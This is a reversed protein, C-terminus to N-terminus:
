NEPAPKIKGNEKEYKTILDTLATDVIDKLKARDWYAVAKIKKLTEKKMIFTARIEDQKTGDESSKSVKWTQTKPRGRKEKKPTYQEKLATLETLETRPTEDKPTDGLLSNIGGTFNKKSM